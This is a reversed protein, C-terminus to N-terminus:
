EIDHSTSNVADLLYRSPSTWASSPSRTLEMKDQNFMLDGTQRIRDVIVDRLTPAWHDEAHMGGCVFGEVRSMALV